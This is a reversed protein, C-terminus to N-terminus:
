GRLWHCENFSTMSRRGTRSARIRTVATYDSDYFTGIETGLIHVLMTSIVGGHCVVAAIGGPNEDIVRDLGRLVRERFSPAKVADFLRNLEAPSPPGAEESPIYSLHGLDFEAVDEIVTPELSLATALPAATQQARMQPSTYLSDVSESRLFDAM